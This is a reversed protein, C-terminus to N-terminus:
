IVKHKVIKQIIRTPIGLSAQSDTEAGLFEQRSHTIFKLNFM